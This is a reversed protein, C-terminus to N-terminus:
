VWWYFERLDRAGFEQDGTVVAACLLKESGSAGM